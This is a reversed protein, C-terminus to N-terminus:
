DSEVNESSRQRYKKKQATGSDPDYIYYVEVYKYYYINPDVGNEEKLFRPNRESVYKRIETVYLNNPFNRIFKIQISDTISDIYQDFCANSKRIIINPCTEICEKNSSM